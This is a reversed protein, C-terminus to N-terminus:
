FIGTIACDLGCGSSLMGNASGLDCNERPIDVIGDGCYHARTCGPTCGGIDGYGATNGQGLDCEEPGNVVGDGCYVSMCQTSCGGYASDSNLAGDDCEEAGSVIGDGCYLFGGDVPQGGDIASSVLVCIGSTCDWGPETLCTPSCGDGSATNGDDCTESGKLLRDGCIPICRHGTWPCRWGEEVTQCDGSCGDGSTINGDDCTESSDLVGDGCVVLRCPPTPCGPPWDSEIQCLRSCGDGSLMNGDDCQEGPDVKGNGCTSIPMDLSDTTEDTSASTDPAALVDPPSDLGADAQGLIRLANRGSCASAIAVFLLLPWPLRPAVDALM